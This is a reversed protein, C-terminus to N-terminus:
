SSSFGTVCVASTAEFLADIFSLQHRDKTAFPLMLLLTGIFILFLFGLSLTQAPNIKIWKVPRYLRRAKKTQTDM